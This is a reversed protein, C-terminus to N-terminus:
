ALSTVLSILPLFLSLAILGVGFGIVILFLPFLFQSGWEQRYRARESYILSLERLMDATKTSNGGGFMGKPSIAEVMLPPFYRSSVCLEIPKDKVEKSLRVCHQVLIEGQSARGAIVLSENLPAHIRLLSSLTMLARSMENLRETSGGLKGWFMSTVLRDHSVRRRIRYALWYMVMSAIAALIIPRSNPGVWSSVWIIFRTPYPLKLQFEEFMKGFLPIVSTCLYTYVIVMVLLLVFMYAFTQPRTFRSDASRSVANVLVSLQASTRQPTTDYVLIAPLWMSFRGEELLQALETTATISALFSDIDSRYGISEFTKRLERLHNAIEDSRKLARAINALYETQEDATSTPTM